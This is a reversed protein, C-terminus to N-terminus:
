GWKKLNQIKNNITNFLINNKLKHM